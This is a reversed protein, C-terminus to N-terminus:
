VPWLVRLSDNAASPCCDLRLESLRRSYLRVNTLSSIEPLVSHKRLYAATTHLKMRTLLEVCASMLVRAISRSALSTGIYSEVFLQVRRRGLGLESSAVLAMMACTQVDGADAYEELAEQLAKRIVERVEEVRRQVENRVYVDRTDSAESGPSGFLGDSVGASAVRSAVRSTCALVPPLFHEHDATVTRTSSRSGSRQLLPPPPAPIPPAAALTSSRSRPGARRSRLSLSRARIQHQQQQKRATERESETESSAPSPSDEDIEREDETWTEQGAAAVRSLPSPAAASLSARPFTQTTPSIASASLLSSIDSDSGSSDSDDLTGEGVHRLSASTSNDTPALSLTSVSPRRFATSARPRNPHFAANSPPRSFLSPTRPSTTSSTSLASQPSLTVQTTSSVRQPSPSNSAPASPVLHPSDGSSPYPSHPKAVSDSSSDKTAGPIPLSISSSLPLPSLPPTSPQSTSTPNPAFLSRLLCWMQFVQHHDAQLAIQANIECLKGNDAGEVVYGKALITFRHLEQHSHGFM